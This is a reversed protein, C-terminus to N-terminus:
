MYKMVIKRFLDKEVSSYLAVPHKLSPKALENYVSDTLEMPSQKVRQVWHDFDRQEAAKAVFTMDALGEGNIEAARGAYEGTEDAMIHIKTAMGAMAYIQGSLQPIWFSNMPSGDAALEFEIPTHAPFEVFNVTAIGQEPYIFLWKWDLAVVQIKLPKVESKLPQYPDLEHAAFWTITAMVVIVLSPIVWLIVEGLASGVHEPDHKAKENSARYKLAVIFLLIFTPIIIIFMLLYNLFILNREKLAIIGKPHILLAGESRLVFFIALLGCVSAVAIVLLFLRFKTKKSM